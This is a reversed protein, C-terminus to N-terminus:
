QSTKEGETDADGEGAEGEASEEGEEGVVEVDMDEEPAETEEEVMVSVKTISAITFDRDTITPSTGDPLTVDSIKITDDMKYPALDIEIAEPIDTARCNLEIEYRAVNLTGGEEELGECKDENIFHVPVNVDIRTKPSVRLFDIHIIHDSIPNVQIDRALVLNKDGELDLETLTNFFHGKYYEIVADRSSVTIKVPEKKDGYIVAPVKKERRLARAAGKGAGARKEAAM